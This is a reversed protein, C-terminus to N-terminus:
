SIGKNLVKPLEPDPLITGDKREHVELTGEHM